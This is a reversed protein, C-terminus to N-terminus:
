LGQVGPLKWQAVGASRDAYSFSAEGASLRLDYGDERPSVMVIRHAATEGRHHARLFWRGDVMSFQSVTCDGTSAPLSGDRVFCLDVWGEGEAASWRAGILETMEFAALDLTSPNMNLTSPPPPLPEEGSCSILLLAIM